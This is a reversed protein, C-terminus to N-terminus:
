RTPLVGGCPGGGARFVPLRHLPGAEEWPPHAEADQDVDWEIFAIHASNLYERAAACDPCAAGSYMTVTATRRPAAAAAAVDGSQPFLSVGQGLRSWAFAGGAVVVIALAALIAPPVRVVVPDGAGPYRSPIVIPKSPPPASPPPSRIVAPSLSSAPDDRAGSSPPEAAVPARPAPYGSAAGGSRASVPVGSATSLTPAGPESRPKSDPGRDRRCLVCGGHPRDALRHEGGGGRLM